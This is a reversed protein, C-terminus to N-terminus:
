RSLGPKELIPRFRSAPAGHLELLIERRTRAAHARDIKLAAWFYQERGPSGPGARGEGYFSWVDPDPDTLTRTLALDISEANATVWAWEIPDYFHHTRADIEPFVHQSFLTALGESVLHEEASTADLYERRTIHPLPKGLHAWTEPRHDRIVHSLEHATLAKLYNVDADPFDIGLYVTHHGRDYRAFGDVHGQSPVLHIEGPLTKLEPAAAHIQQLTQDLQDLYALATDSKPLWHARAHEELAPNTEQASNQLHPSASSQLAKKLSKTNQWTELFPTYHDHLLM